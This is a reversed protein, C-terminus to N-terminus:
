AVTFRSRRARVRESAQEMSVMSAKGTGLAVGLSIESTDGEGSGARLEDAAAEFGRTRLAPALLEWAPVLYEPDNALTRFILNVFPVRLTRRIDEYIPQIREGAADPMVEPREAALQMGRAVSDGSM